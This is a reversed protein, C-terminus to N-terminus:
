RIITVSEPKVDELADVHIYDLYNPMEAKGGALDGAIAWRAEDELTLILSQDLSIGFVFVSWLAATVKRDLGLREAVLAQSEVPRNRVFTSAREVARLFKRLARPNDKAFDRMVTFNFTTRYVDPSPLRTAKDGLLQQAKNHNGAPVFIATDQHAGVVHGSVIYHQFETMPEDFVVTGGDTLTYHRAGFGPPVGEEPRMIVREVVGPAIEEGPVDEVNIHM